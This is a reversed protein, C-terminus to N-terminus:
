AAVEIVTIFNPTREVNTLNADNVTRGFYFTGTTGLGIIDIKYTIATSAAQSPSDLYPSLVSTSPTTDQDDAHFGVAQQFTISARSGATNGVAISTGSGAIVRRLVFAIDHDAISGEGNICGSILFKSNAGVSTLTVTAPTDALSSNPISVSSTTTVNTTVVQLIAGAGRKPATVAAAAIMDTDVIGDPLGGVSIGTVTGSGNIAIPM